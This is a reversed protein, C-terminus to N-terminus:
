PASRARARGAEPRDGALLRLPLPVLRGQARQRIGLCVVTTSTLRGSALARSSASRVRRSSAPRPRRLWRSIRFPTKRAVSGPSGSARASSRPALLREPREGRRAPSGRLSTGSRGCLRTPSSARARERGIGGDRVGVGGGRRRPRAGPRGPMGRGLRGARGVIGREGVQHVLDGSGPVPQHHHHPLPAHPLGRDRGRERHLQRVRPGPAGRWWRDRPACRPTREPSLPLASPSGSRGAPPSGRRCPARARWWAPFSRSASPRASRSSSRREGQVSSTATKWAKLRSTFSARRPTTTSSVAGVPWV